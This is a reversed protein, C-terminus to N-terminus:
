TAAITSPHEVRPCQVDRGQATPAYILSGRAWTVSVGPCAASGGLAVSGSVLVPATPRGTRPAAPPQGHQVRWTIRARLSLWAQAAPSSPQGTM